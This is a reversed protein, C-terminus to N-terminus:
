LYKETGDSATKMDSLQLNKISFNESLIRRFERPINSMEEFSDINHHHIWTFIQDARFSPQKYSQIAEQIQSRSYGLLSPLTNFIQNEQIM